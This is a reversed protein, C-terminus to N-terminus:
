KRILRALSATISITTGRRIWSELYTPSKSLQPVFQVAGEWISINATTRFDVYVSYSHIVLFITPLEQLRSAREDSRSQNDLSGVSFLPICFHERDDVGMLM